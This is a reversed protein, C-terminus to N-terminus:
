SGLAVLASDAIQVRFISGYSATRTPTPLALGSGPRHRDSPGPSVVLTSFYGSDYHEFRTFGRGAREVKKVCLNLGEDSRQVSRHPHNLIETRWRELTAGLSRIEEVEDGKSGVIAKDLLVRAETVDDTLYIDRVSEKALWAGLLEDHPDGHRLGLLM